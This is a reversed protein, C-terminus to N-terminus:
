DAFGRSESEPLEAFGNVLKDKDELDFYYSYVDKTLEVANSSGHGNPIVTTVSIEPANYPAYSVFLAHNPKLKSEQATGTKGAVTVGFDKFMKSSSSRAGNAVKYMGQHILDWTSNKIGTLETYEAKNDLLVNNDKDQIRDLLTLDFRKGSNAVTTVYRAIQVPVYDNTGQGIASPVSYKDSIHPEYEEVEVGSKEGFGFLKAYKALKELGMKDNNKGTSDM